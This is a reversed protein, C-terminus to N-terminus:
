RHFFADFSDVKQREALPLELTHNFLSMSDKPKEYFVHPSLMPLLHTTFNVLSASDECDATQGWTEDVCM